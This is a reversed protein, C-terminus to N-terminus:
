NLTQPRFAKAKTLMITNSDLLRSEPKLIGLTIMESLAKKLRDRVKFVPTDPQINLAKALVTISGTWRGEAHSSIFRHLARGCLSKIRMREPINIWTILRDQYAQVFYSNIRLCQRNDDIEVYSALNDINKAPGTKSKYEIRASAMERISEYLAEYDAHSPAHNGRLRLLEATSGTYIYDNRMINGTLLRGKGRFILALAAVLIDEHGITLLPGTYTITGWPNEALVIKHVQVTQGPDAINRTLAFPNCRALETPYPSMIDSKKAKARPQPEKIKPKELERRVEAKCEVPMQNQAMSAHLNIRLQDFFLKYNTPVFLYELAARDDDAMAQWYADLADIDPPLHTAATIDIM